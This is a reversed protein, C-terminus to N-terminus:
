PTVYRIEFTLNTVRASQCGSLFTQGAELSDLESLTWASGSFPSTLWRQEYQPYPDKESNLSITDGGVTLGESSLSINVTGGTSCSMRAFLTVEVWEITSGAPILASVTEFSYLDTRGPTATRVYTVDNDPTTESVCIWNASCASM